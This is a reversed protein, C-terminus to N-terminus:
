LILFTSLSSLIEPPWRTQVGACLLALKLTLGCQEPGALSYGLGGLASWGGRIVGKGLSLCVPAM